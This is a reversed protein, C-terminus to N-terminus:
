RSEKYGQKRLVGVLETGTIKFEVTGGNNAGAGVFPETKARTTPANYSSNGRPAGGGGGGGGSGGFAMLAGGAAIAALGVFPNILVQGLGWKILFQGYQKAFDKMQKKISAFIDGQGAFTDAMADGLANFAGGLGDSILTSVNWTSAEISEIFEEWGAKLALGVPITKVGEEQLRKIAATASDIVEPSPGVVEGLLSTPGLTPKETNPKIEPAPPVKIIAAKNKAIGLGEYKKILDELKQIEQNKTILGKTDSVNLTEQQAQLEKLKVKLSDLTIIRAQVEPPNKFAAQTAEGLEKLVQIQGKYQEVIGALALETTKNSVKKVGTFDALEAITSREQQFQQLNKQAAKLKTQLDKQLLSSQQGLAVGVDQGSAKADDALKKFLVSTEKSFKTIGPAAFQKGLDKTSALLFTISKVSNNAFDTIANLAGGSGEGITKFLMTFSDGLNSIKGGLTDSISAMSGSVGNADGLSLVYAKIASDTKAVETTVGKFTFAVKDGQASATIGFEKLREFEGTMADLLAETLQDFEKGTSAALDGLKTIEEGTPVIGRNALKVFSDTLQEVSFPTKAAIDQIMLMANQAQSNSGLTNTLVAEMKQFSAATNVVASGFQLIAGVTFAGAIAGSLGGLANTLGSFSSKATSGAKKTTDAFKDTSRSMTDTSGTYKKSTNDVQKGLDAVSSSATKLGKELTNVGEVGIKVNLDAITAM